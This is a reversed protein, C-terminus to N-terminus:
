IGPPLGGGDQPGAGSDQPPGAGGGFMSQLAAAQPSEKARNMAMSALAQIQSSRDTGLGAGPLYRVIDKLGKLVAAHLESGIPLAGLGEQMLGIGATVKAIGAAASGEHAEPRTAAGVGGPAPGGPEGTQPM